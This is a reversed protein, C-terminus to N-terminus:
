CLAWVPYTATVASGGLAQSHAIIDGGFAFGLNLNAGFVGTFIAMALGAAFGFQGTSKLRDTPATECERRKGASACYALGLFLVPISALLLVGRTRVLEEPTLVALPVLSGFLCALGMVIAFALAMGIVSIALGFTVQAIGWLFGFILPVVFARTPTSRVLSSIAPTFGAALLCPLILLAVLSFTLWTNEWEWKRSYKLPLAFTGNLIGSFVVVAMGLGFHESM